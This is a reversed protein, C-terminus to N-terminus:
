PLCLAILEAPAVGGGVPIAIYQKGRAMYTIPAGSAPAPLPIEALLQGTAKDFARLRPPYKPASEQFWSGEQAAILLTKTVILYGRKNTGLDPLHLDRLAPHNKPGEGLPAMWRHDGSNLDIATIRGYPPKFLPLGRPTEVDHGSDGIMYDLTATPSDPKKLALWMPNTVSPVYLIGTEPDCSAGAWSAGGVWGPMEMTPKTTPVTYLPGHVFKDLTERAERKLEPTFDMLDEDYAGQRDFPKPKTPFPQTPWARDGPMITAPAPREEIPWLPKGTVRDFVFCFAQKTVQAVAKVKRGNVVVDALV